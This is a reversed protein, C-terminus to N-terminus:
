SVAQLFGPTKLSHELLYTLYGELLAKLEREVEPPITREQLRPWPSRQFHRLYKLSSLSVPWATPDLSACHPCLIGGLRPSFFQAQPEITERCGVCANLEPRFGILEMLQIEYYHVVTVPPRGEDLRSLSAVVLNYLERNSGEEYTFRDLLELLYAAYATLKLDARIQDFTRVAQAQAIVDLNRGKALFLSVQTFPQLHGAKHSQLKRVGKAIAQLKGRELTYLTLIRDAEGYEMHRIVVAQAHFTRSEEHPM